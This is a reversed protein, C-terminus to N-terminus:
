LKEHPHNKLFILKRIITKDFNILTSELKNEKMLHLFKDYYYDRNNNKHNYNYFCVMFVIFVESRFPVKRERKSYFRSTRFSPVTRTQGFDIVRIRDKKVEYNFEGFKITGPKNYDIMVNRLKSQLVIDNHYFGLHHNLYYIQLCLQITLDLFAIREFQPLLKSRFDKDIPDYIYIYFQPCKVIHVPMSLFVHMNDKKSKELSKNYVNYELPDAGGKKQHKKALYKKSNITVYGVPRSAFLGFQHPVKLSCSVNM